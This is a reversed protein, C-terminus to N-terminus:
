YKINLSIGPGVLIGMFLYLWNLNLKLYFLFISVILILVTILVIILSKISNLHYEYNLYSGHMSCTRM